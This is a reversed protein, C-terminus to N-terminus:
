GLLADKVWSQFAHVCHESGGSEGKQAFLRGQFYGKSRIGRQVGENLDKDEPGLRDNFWEVAGRTTEDDGRGPVNYYANEVVTGEGGTPRMLFTSIM